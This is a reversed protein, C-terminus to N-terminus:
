IYQGGTEVSGGANGPLYSAGGGATYIVANAGAVYRTGTAGTGSFTM